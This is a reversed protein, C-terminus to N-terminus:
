CLLYRNRHICHQSVGSSLCHVQGFCTFYKM